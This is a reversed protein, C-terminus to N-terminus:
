ITVTSKGNITADTRIIGASCVAVFLTFFAVAALKM